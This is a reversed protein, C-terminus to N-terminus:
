PQLELRLEQGNGRLIVASAEVRVVTFGKCTGGGRVYVLGDSTAIAATLGDAQQLISFLKLSAPPAAAPAPADSFPRWLVINWTSSDSPVAQAGAVAAPRPTPIPEATPSAVLWAWLGALLALSWCAVVQLIVSRQFRRHPETAPTM